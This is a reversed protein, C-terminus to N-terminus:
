FIGDAIFKNKHYRQAQIFYILCFILVAQSLTNIYKFRENWNM